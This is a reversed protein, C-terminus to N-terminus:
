RRPNSAQTATQQLQYTQRTHAHKLFRLLVAPEIHKMISGKTPGGYLEAISLTGLDIKHASRIHCNLEANIRREKKFDFSPKMVGILDIDSSEVMDESIFSGVLYLSVLEDGANELVIRKIEQVFQRGGPYQGRQRADSDRKPRKMTSPWISSPFV